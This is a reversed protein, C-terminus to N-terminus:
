IALVWEKFESAFEYRAKKALSEDLFGGIARAALITKLSAAQYGREILKNFIQQALQPNQLVSFTRQIFYGTDYNEVSDSKAHEGDILGLQGTPLKFIHWPTFDGHRARMALSSAGSKVVNFLSDLNYSAVVDRPVADLWDKTKQEFWKKHDGADIIDPRKLNIQLIQILESFRIIDEISNTFNNSIHSTTPWNVILEGEFRETVLYFLGNQYVGSEFNEPVWFNSKARPVLKNFEFNWDHEVRTVASIGQSTSLKLFLKHKGKELHGLVHRGGPWIKPVKYKKEFFKKVNDLDLVQGLRYDLIKEGVKVKFARNKDM